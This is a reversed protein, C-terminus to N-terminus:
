SRARLRAAMSPAVAELALNAKNNGLLRCPEGLARVAREILAEQEDVHHKRCSRADAWGDQRARWVAWARLLLLSRVPADRTEGFDCPNVLKSMAAMGMGGQLVPRNYQKRIRVQVFDAAGDAVTFYEDYWLPPLGRRQTCASPGGCTAPKESLAAPGAPTMKLFKRNIQEKLDTVSDDSSTDSGADDEDNSDDDTCVVPVDEFEADSGLM